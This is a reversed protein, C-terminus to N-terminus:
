FKRQVNPYLDQAPLGLRGLLQFQQVCIQNLDLLFGNFTFHSLIRDGVFPFM